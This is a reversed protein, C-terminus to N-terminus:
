WGYSLRTILRPPLNVRQMLQQTKDVDYSVRRYDLANADTDLIAYSARTDGDRPQGVSGPNIILREDGLSYLGADWLQEAECVPQGDQDQMRFIVPVHTHGVFCYNTNFYSFNLSATSPHLIYEWVPKRPSGHVLTFQDKILSLPLGKLYRTNEPTLQEKTWIVAAKAETNFDEIDTQGTAAWDHNGIICEIDMDRLLKVCENPNPGYGVLDGLCWIPLGSPADALVAELAVLNSHIDSLILYRM